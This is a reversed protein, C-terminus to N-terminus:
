QGNTGNSAPPTVPAGNGNTSSAPASSSGGNTSGPVLNVAAPTGSGPPIPGALAGPIPQGTPSVLVLGPTGQTTIAARQKKSTPGRVAHTGKRLAVAKATTEASPKTRPKIVIGFTKLVPNGVGFLGKLADIYATVFARLGPEAAKWAAMATDLQARAATVAAYLTDGQGLKANIQVATMAVTAVTVTAKGVINQTTGAELADCQALFANPGSGSKTTAM